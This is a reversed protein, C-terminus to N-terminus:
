NCFGFQFGHERVREIADEVENGYKDFVGKYKRQLTEQTSQRVIAKRDRTKNLLHDLLSLSERRLMEDQQVARLGLIFVIARKAADPDAIILEDRIRKLFNAIIEPSARDLLKKVQEGTEPLRRAGAASVIEQKLHSILSEWNEFVSAARTFGYDRIAKEVMNKTAATTTSNWYPPKSLLVESGREVFAWGDERAFALLNIM